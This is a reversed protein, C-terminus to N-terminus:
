RWTQLDAERSGSTACRRSAANVSAIQERADALLEFVGILMGNYRLLNEESISSACRCSRTATTARSTTARHPLRLLGRAGRSRANVATEAARNVAQMYIAEARAVRAGGWDFLPLELAIEYGRRGRSASGRQHARLRHELVNIFRTTQTLGLSQPSGRRTAAERRARRPAADDGRAEVDGCTAAALRAPRAPARAAPLATDEGWLGMLRTLRERTARGGGAARARAAGGGRRLLVQERAQTLKSFNGVQAMRRALEASAEAAEKM